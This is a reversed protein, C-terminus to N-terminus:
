KSLGSQGQEYKLLRILEARTNGNAGLLLLNMAGFISLPSFVVFDDNLRNEIKAIENALQLVNDSVKEEIEESTTLEAYSFRLSLAIILASLCLVLRM